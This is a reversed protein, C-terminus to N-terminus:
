PKPAAGAAAAQYLAAPREQSSTSRHQVNDGRVRGVLTGGVGVPRKAPREEDPCALNTSCPPQMPPRCRRPAHARLYSLLEPYSCARTQIIHGDAVEVGGGGIKVHKREAHEPRLCTFIYTHIHTHIHTHICTDM